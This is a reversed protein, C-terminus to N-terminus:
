PTALLDEVEGIRAAGDREGMEMLLRIYSPDFLLFSLIDPSETERTGLGRLLYRFVRPLGSEFERALRGLDRSPHLTLLRVVRLDARNEVPLQQLLTNMTEVRWADQDLMDLFVSNMLAGIVQALPPYAQIMPQDAEHALPDFRTSIALVREAGLHLAPSIPASLRLAGDSYWETGIQVAPFFVPIGASALVHELRITTLKGRRQPRSWESVGEGQVWTISQGTSYSSTSVALARLRGSRIKEQIGPIAGTGDTVARTLFRQLPTTDVLSRMRPPGTLGGSVLQLGWRLANLALSRGSVEFVQALTLSEWLKALDEVAEAFTGPHAALHTANIAGASIGTIIPIELEPRVRALARLFGVQYAARAGGGGMVLGLPGGSASPKRPSSDSPTPSPGAENLDEPM